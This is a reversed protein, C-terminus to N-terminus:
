KQRNGVELDKMQLLESCVILAEDPATEFLKKATLFQETASIKKKLENLKSDRTQHKAKTMYKVAEKLAGLAEYRFIYFCFVKEYNKYEEVEM